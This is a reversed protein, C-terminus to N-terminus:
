RSAAPAAPETIVTAVGGVCGQTQGPACRAADPPPPPPHRKVGGPPSLMTWVVAVGTAVALAVILLRRRGPLRPFADVTYGGPM